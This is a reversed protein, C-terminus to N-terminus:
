LLLPFNEIIDHAEMNIGGYLCIFIDFRPHWGLKAQVAALLVHM